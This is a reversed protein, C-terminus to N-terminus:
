SWNYPKVNRDTECSIKLWELWKLLFSWDVRFGCHFVGSCDSRRSLSTIIITWFVTEHLWITKEILDIIIIGCNLLSLIMLNIKNSGKGKTQLNIDIIKFNIKSRGELIQSLKYNTQSSTVQFYPSTFSNNSKGDFALTKLKASRTEKSYMEDKRM